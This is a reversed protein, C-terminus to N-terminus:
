CLWQSNDHQYRGTRTRGESIIESGTTLGDAERTNACMMLIAGGLVGDFGNGTPGASHHGVGKRNPWFTGVKVKPRKSHPIGNVKPVVNRGLGARTKRGYFTKGLGTIRRIGEQGTKM